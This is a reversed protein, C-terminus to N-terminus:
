AGMKGCPQHRRERSQHTNCAAAPSTAHVIDGDKISDPPDRIVRDTALLGSVIEMKTGLDRWVKVQKLTVRDDYGVVAVQSGASRFVLASTPVILINENPPLKFRVEVYSGPLLLRDKNECHLQVLLTRSHKAISNSTTAVVAHFIRDPYDPLELTAAMGPHIQAAFPQPVSVYVRMEHVDAVEFLETAIPRAGHVLAGVDVKRGIVVGDFPARLQKFGQFAELRAVKAKAAVVEAIAAKYAGMKEDADQLSVANSRRLAAWRKATLEALALRAEAKKLEGKAQELQQDLEPTDIEALVDGAKVRAGIDKYWMKVYGTVRAHIPATYWAQVEGPLTFVQDATDRQPTVM